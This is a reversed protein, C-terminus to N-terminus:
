WMGNWSSPCTMVMDLSLQSFRILLTRKSSVLSSSLWVCTPCTRHCKLEMGMYIYYLLKSYSFASLWGGEYLCM